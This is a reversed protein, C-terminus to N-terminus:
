NADGGATLSKLIERDGDSEEIPRPRMCIDTGFIDPRLEYLYLLYSKGEEFPVGCDGGGRGTAVKVVSAEPGKWRHGVALTMHVGCSAYDSPDAGFFSSMACWALRLYGWNIDLVEGEVVADAHEYAQQVSSAGCSCCWAPEAVLLSAITGAAMILFRPLRKM